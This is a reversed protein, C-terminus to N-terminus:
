RDEMLFTLIGRIGDKRKEPKRLLAPEAFAFASALDLVITHDM